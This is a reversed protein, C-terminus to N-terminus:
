TEPCELLIESGRHVTVDQYIDSDECEQGQKDLEQLNMGSLVLPSACEISWMKLGKTSDHVMRRQLFRMGCDCIWSNGKLGVDAGVKHLSIYTVPHLTTLQNFSLDLVKLRDLHEFIQPHLSSILNHHVHLEELLKLHSFDKQELTSIKNFSLDLISLSRQRGL